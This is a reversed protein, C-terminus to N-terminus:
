PIVDIRSKVDSDLRSSPKEKLGDNTMNSMNELPNAKEATDIENSM